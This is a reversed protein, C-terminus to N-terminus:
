NACGNIQSVRVALLEKLARDVTGTAFVVDQHAWFTEAIEPRYALTRLTNPVKRGQQLYGDFRQTMEPGVEGRELPRIRAM